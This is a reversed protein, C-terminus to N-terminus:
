RRNFFRAAEPDNDILNEFARVGRPNLTLVGSSITGLGARSIEQLFGANRDTVRMEGINAGIRPRMASILGARAGPSLSSVGGGSRGGGGANRGM